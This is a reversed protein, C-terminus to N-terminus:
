VFLSSTIDMDGGVGTLASGDGLFKTATLAGASSLSLKNSWSGSAYSDIGFAGSTDAKVRWKDANDDGEDASM